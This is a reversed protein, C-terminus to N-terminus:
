QKPIIKSTKIIKFFLKILIITGFILQNRILIFFFYKDIKIM